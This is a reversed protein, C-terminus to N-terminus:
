LENYVQERTEILRQYKLTLSETDSDNPLKLAKLQRKLQLIEALLAKKWITNTHSGADRDSSHTESESSVRNSSSREINSNVKVETKDNYKM